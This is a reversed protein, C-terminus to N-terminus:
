VFGKDYTTISIEFYEEIQNDPVRVANSIDMRTVPEPLTNNIFSQGDGTSPIGDLFAKLFAGFTGVSLRVYLSFRHAFAESGFEIRILDFGHYVLLAADLQLEYVAQSVGASSEQYYSVGNTLKTMVDSNSQMLAVLRAATIDPSTM